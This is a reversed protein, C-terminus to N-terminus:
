NIQLTFSNQTHDFSTTILTELASETALGRGTIERIKLHAQLRWLNAAQSCDATIM